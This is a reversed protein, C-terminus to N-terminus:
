RREQGTKPFGYLKVANEAVIKRKDDEPINKLTREIVQRSHPFTGEDHPYDSGWLLTDAGIFDLLRLAVPDDSFTTHGQRRFMESPKMALKPKIWMHKRKYQDDMAYLVWPLWGAGCEVIAFNLNPHRQLIGSSVLITAPYIGEAMATIMYTLFGGLEEEGVRDPTHDESGTIFHLNLTLGTEELVEWLPEYITLSYPKRKLHIPARVSKYGLKAVRHVEQVARPVDIVPILAAPSFRDLRSGFIDVAWDNYANAVALQFEPDPSAFLSLCMNPYIVEGVIGDRDQDALRRAIDTGGTPDQRFERDLDDENVASDAIDLRRNKRGEIVLYKGGDIDEVHPLRHRYKLPVRQQFEGGSEEVHSDASIVRYNAM